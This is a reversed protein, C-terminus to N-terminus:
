RWMQVAVAQGCGLLLSCRSDRSNQFTDVSSFSAGSVAVFVQDRGVM